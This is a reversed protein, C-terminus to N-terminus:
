STGLRRHPALPRSAQESGCTREPKSVLRAPGSAPRPRSAHNDSQRQWRREGARPRLPSWTRTGRRPLFSRITGESKDAKERNSPFGSLDVDADTLAATVSWALETIEQLWPQYDVPRHGTLERSLMGAAWLTPFYRNFMGWSPNEPRVTPDATITIEAAPVAIAALAQAVFPEMTEIQKLRRSPERAVVTRPPSLDTRLPPHNENGPRPQLHMPPDAPVAYEVELDALLNGVADAVFDQRGSYAQSGNIYGDMSAVLDSPLAVKVLRTSM